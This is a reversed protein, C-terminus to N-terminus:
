PNKNNRSSPSVLSALRASWSKKRWLHIEKINYFAYRMNNQREKKKIQGLEYIADKYHFVMYLGMAVTLSAVIIMSNGYQALFSGFLAGIGGILGAWKFHYPPTENSEISSDHLKFIHRNSITRRAFIYASTIIATPILTYLIKIPTSDQNKVLIAIIVTAILPAVSINLYISFSAYRTFSENFYALFFRIWVIAIFYLTCPLLLEPISLATFGLFLLHLFVGALTSRQMYHQSTNVM